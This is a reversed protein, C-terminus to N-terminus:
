EKKADNQRIKQKYKILQNCKGVKFFLDKTSSTDWYCEGKQDGSSYVKPSGGIQATYEKQQSLSVITPNRTPMALGWEQQNGLGAPPHSRTILYSHASGQPIRPNTSVCQTTPGARPLTLPQSALPDWIKILRSNYLTLKQM